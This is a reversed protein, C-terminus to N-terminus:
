PGCRSPGPIGATRGSTAPELSEEVREACDMVMPARAFEHRVLALQRRAADPGLQEGLLMARGCELMGREAGSWRAIARDLLALKEDPALKAVGSALAEPPLPGRVRYVASGNWMADVLELWDDLVEMTIQVWPNQGWLYDQQVITSGPSVHPGFERLVFDNLDWSKLVDLFLVEIPTGDWGLQRIDGARVEVLPALDGLNAEFQARFSEGMGPAGAGSFFEDVTYPEVVFRDYSVVRAGPPRGPRDRLGAALATTSGGLFAGADVIAGAGTWGRGLDYLLRRERPSLM